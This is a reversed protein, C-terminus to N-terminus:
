TSKRTYEVWSALMYIADTTHTGPILNLQAVNPYAVVTTIPVTVLTVTSTFSLAASAAGLNSGGKGEWWGVAMTVTADTNTNKYLLLKVNAVGGTTWDNPLVIGQAIETSDSAAWDIRLGKDTAANIRELIPTTDKGLIGSGGSAIAKVPIDNSSIARWAELPLPIFGVGLALNSVDFTSGAPVFINVPGKPM